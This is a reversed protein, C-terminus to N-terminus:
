DQANTGKIANILETLAESSKINLDRQPFPIEINAEKLLDWIIFNLQGVLRSRTIERLDHYVLLEFDVTSNGFETLWVEPPPNKQVNPHSLAAKILLQEVERPKCEYTLGVPIHVRIYPDRYSWNIVEGNVLNKSPILMDVNDTTRIVVSRAGVEEVRGFLNNVTIVDGKKVSRGFLLIFGSVLNETLTQLGLGIGVGLAALIVTLSSFDVGLVVMSAIIGVLFFAYSLLTNIAYSIGVDLALKPFVFALMVARIIKGVFIAMTIVVAADLLDVLTLSVKGLRFLEVSMLAILPDWLLLLRLGVIVFGFFMAFRVMTAISAFLDAEDRSETREVREKMRIRFWSGARIATSVVFVLGYARFLIFASAREYGFAALILLMITITVGSLFYREIRYRLHSSVNSDVPGALLETVDRRLFLFSSFAIAVSAYTIFALWDLAVNPGELSRTINQALAGVLGVRLIWVLNQTLRTAVADSVAVLRFGFVSIVTSHLLRYFLWPLMLSTLARTWPAHGFLPQLPFFTLGAVILIPTLRATTVIGARALNNLWEIGHIDVDSQKRFALAGFTRDLIVLLFGLGVTLLTPLLVAAIFETLSFSTLINIAQGLSEFVLEDLNSDLARDAREFLTSYEDLLRDVFTRWRSDIDEPRALEFAPPDDKALGLRPLFLACVTILYSLLRAM